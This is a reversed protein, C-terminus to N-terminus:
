DIRANRTQAKAEHYPDSPQKHKGSRGIQKDKGSGVTAEARKTTAIHSKDNRRVGYPHVIQLKAALPGVGVKTAETVRIQKLEFTVVDRTAKGSKGTKRLSMRTKFARVSNRLKVCKMGDIRLGSQINHYKITVQRMCRVVTTQALEITDTAQGAYRSARVQYIKKIISTCM